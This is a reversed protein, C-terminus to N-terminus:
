TITSLEGIGVKQLISLNKRYSAPGTFHQLDFAFARRDAAAAVAAIDLLLAPPATVEMGNPRFPIMM